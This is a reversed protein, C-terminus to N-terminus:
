KGKLNKLIRQMGANFLEKYRGQIYTDINALFHPQKYMGLEPTDYFKAAHYGDFTFQRIQRNEAVFAYNTIYVTYRNKYAPLYKSNGLKQEERARAEAKAAQFISETKRAKAHERLYSEPDNQFGGYSHENEDISVYWASATNGTTGKSMGIIELTVTVAIDLMLKQVQKRFSRSGKGFFRDHVKKSFVGGSYFGAATGKGGLLQLKRDLRAMQRAVKEEGTEYLRIAFKIGGNEAM